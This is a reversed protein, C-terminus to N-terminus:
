SLDRYLPLFGELQGFHIGTDKDQSAIHSRGCLPQSDSDIDIMDKPALVYLTTSPRRLALHSPILCSIFDLFSNGLTLVFRQVSETALGAIKTLAIM